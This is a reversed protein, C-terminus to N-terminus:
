EKIQQRLEKPVDGRYRYSPFDMDQHYILINDFSTGQYQLHLWGTGVDQLDVDYFHVRAFQYMWNKREFLVEGHLTEMHSAPVESATSDGSNLNLVFDFPFPEKQSLSQAMPDRVNYYVTLQLERSEAVYYVYRVQLFGTDSIYSMLKQENVHLVGDNELYAAATADTFALDRLAGRPVSLFMRMLLVIFLSLLVATVIGRLVWKRIKGARTPAFYVEEEM